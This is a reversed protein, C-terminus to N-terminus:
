SNRIYDELYEIDEESDELHLTRLKQLYIEASSAKKMNVFEKLIVLLLGYQNEKPLSHFYSNENELWQGMKIAKDHQKTICYLLFLPHRIDASKPDAKDLDEYIAIAEDLRNFDLMLIEAKTRLLEPTQKIKLLANLYYLPDDSTNVM